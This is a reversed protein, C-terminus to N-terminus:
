SATPYIDPDWGRPGSGLYQETIQYLNGIQRYPMGILLYNKVGPIDVVGPINGVITNRAKIEPERQTWYSIYIQINPVLYTTVGYKRNEPDNLFGQFRLSNPEFRAGNLPAAPTGAFDMFDPHTEINDQGSTGPFQVIPPTPDNEIGLYQCTMTTKGTEQTVIERHYVELRNDDPHSDFIRPLLFRNENDVTFAVSGELTGDNRETISRNPQIVVGLRVLEGFDARM